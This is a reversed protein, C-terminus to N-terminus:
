AQQNSCRAVDPGVCTPLTLAADDVCAQAAHAITQHTNVTCMAAPHCEPAPRSRRYSPSRPGTRPWGAPPRPTWRRSRCTRGQALHEDDPAHKWLMITDCFEETHDSKHCLQRLYRIIEPCGCVRATHRLVLRPPFMSIISRQTPTPRRHNSWPTAAAHLQTSGRGRWSSWVDVVWELRGHVQEHCSNLLSDQCGVCLAETDPCCRQLPAACVSWCLRRANGAKNVVCLRVM